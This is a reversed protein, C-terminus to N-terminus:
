VDLVRRAPPEQLYLFARLARMANDKLALGLINRNCHYCLLGRLSARLGELKELKHDHDLNAIKADPDQPGPDYRNVLSKVCIACVGGQHEYIAM